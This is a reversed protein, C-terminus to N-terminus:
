GKFPQPSPPPPKSPSLSGGDIHRKWFHMKWLLISGQKETIKFILNEGGINVIEM